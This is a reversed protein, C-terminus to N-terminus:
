ELCKVRGNSTEISSHPLGGVKVRSILWAGGKSKVNLAVLRQQEFGGRTVRFRGSRGRGRQFRPDPANSGCWWGGGAENSSVM